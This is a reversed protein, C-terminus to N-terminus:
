DNHLAKKYAVLTEKAAKKWTYNELIHNRFSNDIPKSVANKLAQKISELDQAECFEAHGDFYDRTDGGKGVVLNCGMSGAELSSLGTTEFWSPLAHVQSSAYEKLLNKQPMFDLFRVKEQAISKCYDLYQKHNPPTKGILTLHLGLEVCAAILRHQNKRGYIQAVSIIKDKQRPVMPIQSFVEEDIGNPVYHFKMDVQLSTKLRMFESKSNALVLRAGGVIIKMARRHGLLYEPSVLVDQRRAFRYLTKFYESAHVGLTSFAAKSLGKRGHKDFAEYSLYIPSLVYPKRSKRVHFLIDSPRILNFFHLLDYQDYAITANAKFFDVHIGLRRLEAATKFVQITDGGRVTQLTSRSIMAVRLM